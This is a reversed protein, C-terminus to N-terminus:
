KSIPIWIQTDKSDYLEFDLDMSQKYESIVFYEKYIKEWLKNIDEPNQGECKFVVWLSEAVEIIETGKMMTEKEEVEVGIGYRFEQAGNTGLCIGIANKTYDKTLEKQKGTEKLTTWFKPIEKKSTKLNFDKVFAAIKFKDKKEIKYEMRNGGEITLSLNIKSFIKLNTGKERAKKPSIGHFKTFARTFSENSGFCYKIAIDLINLHAEQSLDDAACSLRRSRIYEAPSIGVIASFIRHFYFSSMGIQKAVNEYNIEEELNDEIYNIAKQIEVIYNM